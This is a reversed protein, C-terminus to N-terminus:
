KRHLIILLCVKLYIVSFDSKRINNEILLDIQIILRKEIIFKM